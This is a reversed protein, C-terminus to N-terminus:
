VIAIGSEISRFLVQMTCKIKTVHFTQALTMIKIQELGKECALRQSSRRSSIARRMREKLFYSIVSRRKQSAWIQKLRLEMNVPAAV